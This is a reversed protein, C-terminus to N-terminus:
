DIRSVAGGFVAGYSKFHKKKLYYNLNRQKLELYEDDSILFCNVSGGLRPCHWRCLMLVDPKGERCSTLIHELNTLGTTLSLRAWCRLQEGGLRLESQM